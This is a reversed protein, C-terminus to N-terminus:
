PSMRNLTFYYLIRASSPRHLRDDAPCLFDMKACAATLPVTHDAPFNVLSTNAIVYVAIESVSSIVSITVLSANPMQNKIPAASTNKMCAPKAMTSVPKVRALFAPLMMM